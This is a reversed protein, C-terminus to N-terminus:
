LPMWLLKASIRKAVLAVLKLLYLYEMVLIACINLLLCRTPTYLTLLHSYMLVNLVLCKREKWVKELKLYAFM